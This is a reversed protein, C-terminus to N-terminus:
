WIEDIFDCERAANVLEPYANPLVGDRAIEMDMSWKGPRNAPPAERRSLTLSRYLEPASQPARPGLTYAQDSDSHMRVLRM